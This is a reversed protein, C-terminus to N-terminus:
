LCHIMNVLPMWLWTNFSVRSWYGRAISWWCSQQCVISVRDVDQEVTLQSHVLKRDISMLQGVSLRSDVSQLTSPTDVLVLDSHWKLHQNLTDILFLNILVCAKVCPGLYFPLHLESQLVAAPQCIRKKSTLCGCTKWSARYQIYLLGTSTM